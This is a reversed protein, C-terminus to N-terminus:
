EVLIPDRLLGDNPDSRDKAGSSSPLLRASRAIDWTRASFSRIQSVRIRGARGVVVATDNTAGVRARDMEISSRSRREAEADDLRKEMRRTRRRTPSCRKEKARFASIDSERSLSLRTSIRQTGLGSPSISCLRHRLLVHLDDLA